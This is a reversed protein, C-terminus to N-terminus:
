KAGVKIHQMDKSGYRNVAASTIRLATRCVAELEKDEVTGMVIFDGPKVDADTGPIYIAASDANESGYKKVEEAYVDQWMVAPIYVASPETEDSLRIITCDTNTTMDM